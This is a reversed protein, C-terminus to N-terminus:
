WYVSAESYVEIWARPYSGNAGGNINVRIQNTGGTSSITINSSGVQRQAAFNTGNTVFIFEAYLAYQITAATTSAAAGGAHVRLWNPRQSGGFTIDKFFSSKNNGPNVTFAVYNARNSLTGGIAFPYGSPRAAGHVDLTRSPTTTGVGVRSNVTDVFLNATGVELNSSVYANGEVHLNAGPNTTGVGVNGTTYYINSGTETWVGGEFLTGNQFLSDTFNISGIVDLNYGPSTTNIGIRGMSGNLFLGVPLTPFNYKIIFGDQGTSIPLSLGNGLSVTSTSNYHGCFYVNGNPDTAVSQGYDNGTGVLTNYQLANGNSDYKVIYADTGSSIPLSLDNSLSIASTSNYRGAVYVSGDSDTAVGLAFIDNSPVLTKYWLANGSSDYKVIFADRYGTGTSIPLELGNGLSVPSTSTFYEGCFYVNGDSDTALNEGYDSSTGALTKYWLANGSSNYKVIYADNGTTSPLSLGNGLSVTSTSSYFGGLYVNGSPDTAVSMGYDSSTGVLTKFWLANGNSDYKVIYADTGSSIPLSLGNGLSVTSTSYYYGTLYVNYSSDTAISRGHDSRTGNITKFWQPTGTSNYQILFADRYGTGTSSPLSLGNGVSVASGSKYEGALYVNGNQDTAVSQGFDFSAGDVVNFWQVTGSSDYKIIFAAQGTTSPLSFGNGISFASTSQYYGALLVNGSTDTAVDQVYVGSIPSNITKYWMPNGSPIIPSAFTNGLVHLEAEPTTTGIGVRSMQTDVFLNAQGVELNSSVYANGDVHLNAGPNTTGVGVNGTTYYIDNGTETWVGGGGGEFLTGNQYLNGTFNVNSVELNSSVYVNGEVHLNAQPTGTAVGVHLNAGDAVLVDNGSEHVRLRKGNADAIGISVDGDVYSIDDGAIDWASDTLGSLQSGDGHLRTAYMEGAVYMAYPNSISSADIGIGVRSNQRDVSFTPTVEDTKIDGSLVLDGPILQVNTNTSM